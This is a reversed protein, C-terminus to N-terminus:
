ICAVIGWNFLISDGLNWWDRKFSIISQRQEGNMPCNYIIQRGEFGTVLVYHDQLLCIIPVGSKVYYRLLKIDFNGAIVCFGKERLFSEITRLQVGDIACSLSTLGRTNVLYYNLIMEICARGCDSDSKQYVPEIKM